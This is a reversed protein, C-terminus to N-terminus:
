SSTESLSVGTILQFVDRSSPDPILERMLQDFPMRARRVLVDISYALPSHPEANRFYDAIAVLSHIADERNGPMAYCTALHEDDHLSDAPLLVSGSELTADSGGTDHLRPGALHCLADHMEALTDRMLSTAPALVGLKQELVADLRHLAMQASEVAVLQTRYFDTATHAAAQQVDRLSYGLAANRQLRKDEDAIRHAELAARYHWLAFDNENRCTTSFNNIAEVISGARRNGNLGNIATVCTEFSEDSGPLPFLSEWYHQMLEAYLVLTDALGQAGRLRAQAEILWACVDLDKSHQALIHHCREAVQQWQALLRSQDCAIGQSRLRESDRATNRIDRTQLFLDSDRMDFGAPFAPDIAALLGHREPLTDHM